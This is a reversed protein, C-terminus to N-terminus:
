EQFMGNTHDYKIFEAKEHIDLKQYVSRIHNKVTYPSLYLISSIEENSYGEYVMKMVRMEADSLRTNLKPNCIRGEYPCEGRLPCSVREFHMQGNRDIDKKTNDMSGFNCKMFRSVILYQFYPVNPASKQYCETLAKYADPYQERIRQLIGQILDKDQESVRENRGDPHICWLESDYIYFEIDKM